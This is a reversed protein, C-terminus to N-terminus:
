SKRSQLFPLPPDLQSLDLLPTFLAQYNIRTWSDFSSLDHRWPDNNPCPSELHLHRLKQMHVMLGDLMEIGSEATHHYRISLDRVLSARERREMFAVATKAAHRGTRILLRAWIYPEVLVQMRSCTASLSSLAPQSDIQAIIYLLLEDVLSLLPFPRAQEVDYSPNPAGGIDVETGSM